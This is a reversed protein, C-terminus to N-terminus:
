NPGNRWEISIPLNIQYNGIGINQFSYIRGFIIIEFNKESRFIGVYKFLETNDDIPISYNQDKYLRFNMNENKSNKMVLLDKGVTIAATKVRLTILGGIGDPRCLIKITTKTDYNGAVTPNYNGFVLIPNTVVQCNVAFSKTHLFCFFLFFYSYLYRM